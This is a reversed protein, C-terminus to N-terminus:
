VFESLLSKLINFEYYNAIDKMTKLLDIPNKMNPYNRRFEDVFTGKFKGGCDCLTFLPESKQERCKMCELDQSFYVDIFNQMKKVLLFEIMNKDINYQCEKCEWTQKLYYEDRCFDIEISANCYFCYIDKLVFTRCPDVFITEKSYEQVHIFKDCNIKLIKAESEIDNDLGLIECIYNIYEAALNTRREIDFTGLKVPYSWISDIRKNEM